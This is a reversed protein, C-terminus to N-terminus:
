VRTSANMNCISQAIKFHDCNGDVAPQLGKGGWQGHRAGDLLQRELVLTDRELAIALDNGAALEVGDFQGM